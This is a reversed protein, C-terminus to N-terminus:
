LSVKCNFSLTGILFCLHGSPSKERERERERVEERKEGKRKYKDRQIRGGVAARPLAYLPWLQRGSEGGEIGLELGM